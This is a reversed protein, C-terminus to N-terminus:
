IEWCWMLFCNAQISTTSPESTNGVEDQAEISYSYKTNASVNTDKFSLDSTESIIKNNRKLIYKSVGVNDSSAQWKLQIGYRFKGSDLYLSRSLVPKTPPQTDEAMPPQTPQQSVTINIAQSSSPAGKDDTAKAYISYGNPEANTWKLTFPSNTVAGIIKNNAFFEVKAITGDEDKADAKLEINAPTVFNNGNSQLTVTPPKNAPTNQVNITVMSSVGVNGSSDYAKAQLTHIGDTISQSELSISYPSQYITSYIGGDLLIEVRTIAKNDQASISINLKGQAVTNSSPSIISVTPASTDTELMCNEGTGAPTCGKAPGSNNVALIRDIKVGPQTGVLSLSQLGTNFNQIVKDTQATSKYNIWTWQNPTIQNGGINICTGNNISMGFSNSKADPIMIRSWITYEGKSPIDLSTTTRGQTKEDFVCSANAQQQSSYINLLILALMMIALSYLKKTLRM